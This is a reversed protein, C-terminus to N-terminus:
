SGDHASPLLGWVGLDSFKDDLCEQVSYFAKRCLYARVTALYEKVPLMRVCPPLLNHLLPAYYDTGLRTASLRHFPVIIDNVNRTAYGHVASHTTFKSINNKIYKLCELIFLSPLTLINHRIFGGRCDDRWAIGAIVRVAKRQLGFLRSAAPAHGWSLLAYRLHSGMLAHYAMLIVHNSVTPKLNRLLYVSSAVRGCVYDVHSNWNLRCDLRVGLFTVVDDVIYQKKLTFVMENTKAENLCLHNSSFWDQVRLRVDCLRDTLANYSDGSAAVTTDDAFLILRDGSICGVLDNVYILFLIPGLVSGQPVGSTVPLCESLEGRLSVYQTRSSLYSAVLALSRHDFGYRGLKNVLLRHSVCDFARSLDCFLAGAFEAKEFCEYIHETLEHIALSASMQKRFGFQSANFLGNEEFYSEIQNKLIREFVKAVIPLLSIPRYNGPDDIPGKKYIPVVRAVKLADPFMGQQICANFLRTLPVYILNGICKILKVSFGFKDTSNGSKLSFIADRVNVPSVESFSFVTELRSYPSRDFYSDSTSQSPLIGGLIGDVVKSFYINFTDADLSGCTQDKIRHRKLNILKWAGAAMNQHQTLFKDHTVKKAEVIAQKYKKQYNAATLKLEPSNERSAAEKMFHLTERMCYLDHTFWKLGGQKRGSLKIDKVPFCANLGDVLVDLFSGFQVDVSASDSQIFSWDICQISSYFNFLGKQTIPRCSFTDAPRSDVFPLCVQLCIARHDTLHPQLVSSKYEAINTFANDICNNVRTPQLVTRLLGFTAMCDLFSHTEKIARNFYVNFDGVLVINVFNGRLLHELVRGVVTEFVRPSGKGNRYATIVVLNLSPVTISSLECVFEISLDSIWDNVTYKLAGRVMVLVGGHIHSTRCFNSAVHYDHNNLLNIENDTLWHESLCVIDYHKDCLFGELLDLKNRASQMNLHFINIAKGLRENELSIKPLM